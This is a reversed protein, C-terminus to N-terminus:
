RNVEYSKVFHLVSDIVNQNLFVIQDNRKYYRIEDLTRKEDWVGDMYFNICKFVDDNAVNGIVVDFQKYVDKGNRCDCVFQLWSRDPETFHKIHYMSIDDMEYVNVIPTKAQRISKRIAWKEAQDIFSTTYFGMGFDLFPKSHSIDPSQIELTTGHYIIM